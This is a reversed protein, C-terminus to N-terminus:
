YLACRWRALQDVRMNAAQIFIKLNEVLKAQGEFDGLAQPRLAKDIQKEEPTFSVDSPDLNPNSL